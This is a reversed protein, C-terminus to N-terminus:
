SRCRPPAARRSPCNGSTRPSGRRGRRRGERLPDAPPPSRARARRRRAFGDAFHQLAEPSREVDDHRAAALAEDLAHLALRPDGDERMEFPEHVDVDIARRVEVLRDPDDDIRLHPAGADAAGGLRQQDVAGGRRRHEGREDLRQEGRAARHAAVLRRLRGVRGDSRRAFLVPAGFIEVRDDRRLDDVASSPAIACM